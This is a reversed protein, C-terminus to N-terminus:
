PKSPESGGAAQDRGTVRGRLREVKARTAPDKALQEARGRLQSVKARTAPDNAVQKARRGADAIVRQGQPSRAWRVAKNFMSSSAMGPRYGSPAAPSWGLSAAPSGSVLAGGSPHEELSPVPGDFSCGEPPVAEAASATLPTPPAATL